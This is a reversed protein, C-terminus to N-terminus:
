DWIFGMTFDKVFVENNDNRGYEGKYNYEKVQDLNNQPDVKITWSFKGACGIEYLKSLVDNIDDIIDESSTKKNLGM